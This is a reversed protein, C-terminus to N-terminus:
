EDQIQIAFRKSLKQWFLLMDVRILQQVPVKCSSYEQDCQEASSFRRGKKDAWVYTFFKKLAPHYTGPRPFSQSREFLRRFLNSLPQFEDTERAAHCLLKWRCNLDEVRLLGFYGEMRSLLPGYTPDFLYDPSTPDYNLENTDPATKTWGVSKFRNTARGRRYYTPHRAM